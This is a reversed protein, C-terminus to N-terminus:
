WVSVRSEPDTWMGDGPRIGYTEYFDDVTQLVRNCRLKDPAHTDSASLYERMQRPASWSPPTNPGPRWCSIPRREGPSPTPRRAQAPLAGLTPVAALALSITQITKHKKM